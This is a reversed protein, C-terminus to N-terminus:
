IIVKTINEDLKVIYLGKELPIYQTINSIERSFLLLGDMRYVSLLTKPKNTKVILLQNNSSIEFSSDSKNSPMLSFFDENALYKFNFNTQDGLSNGKSDIVFDVFNGKKVDGLDANLILDGDYTDYRYREEGDVYILVVVHDGITSTNKVKGSIRLKGSVTSTWRIVPSTDASPKATMKGISPLLSQDNPRWASNSQFRMKLFCDKSYNGLTTKTYGYSWGLDDQLGKRFWGTVVDAVASYQKEGDISINNVLVGYDIKRASNSTLETVVNDKIIVNRCASTFLASENSIGYGDTFYLDKKNWNNDSMNRIITNGEIQLTDIYTTTIGYIDGVPLEIRNNLIKINSMPVARYASYISNGDPAVLDFWLGGANRFLNNQVKLNRIYQGESWCCTEMHFSQGSGINEITNGEILGDCAGNILLGRNFTDHLKSNRIVYGSCVNTHHEILSGFDAEVDTDLQIDYVSNSLNPIANSQAAMIDTENTVATIDTVKANGRYEQTDNDWFDIRQGVKVSGPTFIVRLKNKSNDIRSAVWGFRGHINILDDATYSIECDEIDPGVAMENMHFGDAGSMWLRNTGPRRTAIVHRLLHNGKGKDGVCVMGGSAYVNISDLKMDQCQSLSIMYGTRSPLVIYDGVDVKDFAGNTLTITQDANQSISCSLPGHRKFTGDPNFIIFTGNANSILTEYGKMPILAVSSNGNKSVVKGQSFPVPDCDFTINSISVDNCSLFALGYIHPADFWFTVNKGKAGVIKTKKLSSVVFSGDGSFRCDDNIIITKEIDPSLTYLKLTDILKQGNIRQQAKEIETFKNPTVPLDPSWNEALLSEVSFLSFFIYFFCVKANRM